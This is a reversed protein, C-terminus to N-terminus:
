RRLRLPTLIVFPVHLPLYSTGSSILGLLLSLGHLIRYVATIDLSNDNLVKM